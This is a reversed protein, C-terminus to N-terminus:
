RRLQHRGQGLDLLQPSIKAFLSQRGFLFGVKPLFERGRGDVMGSVQFAVFQGKGFGLRDDVLIPLGSLVLGGMVNRLRSACSIRLPTSTIAQISCRVAWASTGM